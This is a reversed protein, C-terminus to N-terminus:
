RRLERTLRGLLALILTRDEGADLAYRAAEANLLERAADRDLTISAVQQELEAIKERLKAVHARWDKLEELQMGIRTRLSEIVEAGTPVEVVDRASGERPPPVSPISYIVDPRANM